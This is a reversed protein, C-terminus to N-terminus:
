KKGNKKLLFDNNIVKMSLPGSLTKSFVPEVPRIVIGEKHNGGPYQGRARELLDEISSYPLSDGQEEVPVMCLGLESCLRQTDELGMRKHESVDVVTFVYWNPRQLKLPNRQIGPACFEGQIAINDLGAAKLREELQFEHAWGWFSCNGDDAYEYNHGCVGFRGDIRFMTASTGDMKTTIYYPLGAFEELLGPEAQIRSEETKPIGAPLSGIITGNSTAREEIEWKRVGLLETVDEGISWQGEGLISLPLCLGQSIQGRFRQTRLRFGEGLLESNKYCGSRLFEFEPRIPLFSDIEFYVCLDGVAFEGKKAVCRWGLVGICEIKDAGDIPWVDHVYQVSALKRVMSMGKRWYMTLTM